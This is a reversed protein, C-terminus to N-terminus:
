APASVNVRLVPSIHRRWRGSRGTLARLPPPTPPHTAPSTHPLAASGHFGRGKGAARGRGQASPAPTRPAPAAPPGGPAAATGAAPAGLPLEAPTLRRPPTLSRRSVRPLRSPPPAAARPPCSSAGGRELLPRPHLSLFFYTNRRAESGLTIPAPQPFPAAPGRPGHEGGGGPAKAQPSFIFTPAPKKLREAYLHLNRSNSTPFPMIRQRQPTGFSSFGVARGPPLETQCLPTLTGPEPDSETPSRHANEPRALLLTM